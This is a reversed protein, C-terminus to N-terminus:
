RVIRKVANLAYRGMSRGNWRKLPTRAQQFVPAREAMSVTSFSRQQPVTSRSLLWSPLGSGVANTTSVPFEGTMAVHVCDETSGYRYKRNTLGPGYHAYKGSNTLITANPDHPIVPPDLLMCWCTDNIFEVGFDQLFQIPEEAQSHIARSLCAMIRVDPHKKPPATEDHSMQKQILNVLNHCEQVSLHPNGLAILDIKQQNDDDGTNNNNLLSFTEQCHEWTVIKTSGEAHYKLLDGNQQSEPTIGEIHVLPSTGTTGFAACFAKLHDNTIISAWEENDFGVLIPVKGDSLGGCVHGLTPFLMELNVVNEKQYSSLVQQLLDTADLIVQPVRNQTLHVGTAPIKGTLACCIDLYDAYKETRAGLVSNAYVVANSEGWAIQDGLEPATATLLYPACTFSPQCDLALYADGLAISNNAYDEPVGLASHRRRDASVSNLTTPVLVKGNAQVLRQTFALGGPGIYTCGDIHAQTITEYAISDDDHTKNKGLHAYRFLVRFAMRQAETTANDLMSQEEKTLQLQQPNDSNVTATVTTDSNDNRWTQVAQAVSHSDNGVLLDGNPLVCGSQSSSQKLQQQEQLLQNYRDTGVHIMDPVVLYNDGDDDDSDDNGQQQFVEQAIIAGVCALGDVDRFVFATPAKRNLILELLVQSATCSGRGSPLCLITDTVCHGHLPHSTDVVIGTLPDIGGWFSLSVDSILLPSTATSTTTSTSGQVLFDGAYITTSTM